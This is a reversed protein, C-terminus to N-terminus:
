PKRGQALDSLADLLRQQRQAADERTPRRFFSYGQMFVCTLTGRVGDPVDHEGGCSQCPLTTM